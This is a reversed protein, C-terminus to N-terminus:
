VTCLRFWSTNEGRLASLDKLPQLDTEVYKQPEVVYDPYGGNDILQDNDKYKEFVKRM